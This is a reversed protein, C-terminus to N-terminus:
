NAIAALRRIRKVASASLSHCRTYHEAIPDYVRITGDGDVTMRHRRVGQGAFARARATIKIDNM